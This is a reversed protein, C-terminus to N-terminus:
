KHIAKKFWDDAAEGLVELLSPHPQIVESLEEVTGESVKVGLLEGILDTAHPGAIFGGLIEGYKADAVIQIFGDTEDEIMAKANSQFYAEATKVKYGQEEAQSKTLGVSAAEVRTYICRPIMHTDVPKPKLGAIAEVATVGEASAAHALQYTSILDGVAYIHPTSTQYNNNVKIFPTNNETELKLKEAAQLNPKRGTAVLLTDFTVTDKNALIIEKQNIQKIECNTVVNINQQELHNKLISRIEKTETLLIDKAVELITVKVGLDAMSSAIETAIVGGGIVALEKPLKEIKFITNTTHYDVKDLGDIPPVFPTSGTALLIDKAQITQHDIQITLDENIRAEGNFVKVKNQKLLHAVGNTLNSIVSNTRKTLKSFDINLHDTQIGWTDALKIDHVKTGYELLLKSPICGVNLCTGGMYQKEIIATNLGLQAARIASVYGGPGAGIVVLDYKEM